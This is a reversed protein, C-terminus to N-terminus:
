YYRKLVDKVLRVMREFIGKWWPSLPPNFHWKLGYSLIFISNLCSVLPSPFLYSITCVCTIIDYKYTCCCIYVELTLDEQNYAQLM